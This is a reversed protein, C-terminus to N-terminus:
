LCDKKFVRLGRSDIYWPPDCTGPPPTAGRSPRRPSASGSASPAPEASSETGWAIPASATSSASAMPEFSAAVAPLRSPAQTVSPPAARGALRFALAGAAASVAAVLALWVVRRGGASGQSRQSPRLSSSSSLETRTVSTASAGAKEQRTAGEDASTTEPLRVERRASSSEIAAVQERRLELTARAHEEVWAGVKSPSWMPSAEEIALAMERATAFRKAPHRDLGRMTIADFAPPLDPVVSSPTPTSGSLVKDMVVAENDGAFLRRGTLTEWLVVSASYVDSARSVSGHIQEPSMYALKGKLQGSQTSQTRGLAKAVGFDLVRPVGDIGVLINHPSVDRHVLHLPEGEESKAEHAAHLGYLAGVLVTAVLAPPLREGKDEAARVLRSLVEGMVYEMVLFVEGETSVVDLTPVVNPHSIRAAVRAEDLFMAVFAADYAFQPHLQKIAVTRAFGVPGLLRGLHVAGMGGAAIRDYLVYRGLVRSQTQRMAGLRSFQLASSRASVVAIVIQCSL